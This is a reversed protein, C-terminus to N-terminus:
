QEQGEEQEQGPPLYQLEGPGSSAVLSVLQSLHASDLPLHLNALPLHAAKCGPFSM